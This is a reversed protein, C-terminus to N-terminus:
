PGSREAPCARVRSSGGPLILPPLEALCSITAVRGPDLIEAEEAQWLRDRCCLVASAGAQLAPNIDSRPSNGVAVVREPPVGQSELLMVFAQETKRPVVKCCDVLDAVGSRRFKDMQHGPEGMTYVVTKLGSARFIDLADLAGELLIVPHGFLSGSIQRFADEAWPPAPRVLEHMVTHLTDLYPGAGYGTLELRELDRRHVLARVEDGPHGLTRMLLLFDQEAREFYLASEWLTDDADIVLLDPMGFVTKM